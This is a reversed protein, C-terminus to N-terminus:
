RTTVYITPSMTSLEPFSSPKVLGLQHSVILFRTYALILVLSKRIGHLWLIMSEDSSQWAQYQGHKLLWGGTDKTRGKRATTHHDEYPIQSTWRLIESREIENSRNWLAAVTNDIRGIPYKLEKLKELLGTLTKTHQSSVAREFKNYLRECNQAEIDVRAELDQCRKEFDVIDNPDWFANLARGATNKDYLKIAKSLFQLILVYLETLATEFNDGAEVARPDRPYLMEYVKCRDIIYLVRDLGLLLAGMQQSESVAAQRTNSANFSLTFSDHHETGPAFAQHGGM